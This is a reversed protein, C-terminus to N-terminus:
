VGGTSLPQKHAFETRPHAFLNSKASGNGGRPKSEGTQVEDNVGSTEYEGEEIGDTMKHRAM